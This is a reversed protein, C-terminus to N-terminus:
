GPRDDYAFQGIGACERHAVKFSKSLVLGDDSLGVQEGALADRLKTLPTM